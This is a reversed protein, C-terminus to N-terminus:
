PHAEAYLSAANTMGLTYRAHGPSDPITVTVLAGKRDVAIGAVRPQWRQEAGAADHRVVPGAPDFQWTIQGASTTLVLRDPAPQAITRAQWIDGRLVDLMHDFSADATAATQSQHLGTTCWRLVPVSMALTVLSLTIGVLTDPLTFASSRGPMTQNM